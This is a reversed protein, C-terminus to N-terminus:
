CAAVEGNRLKLVIVRFNRSTRTGANMAKTAQPKRILQAGIRRYRPYAKVIPRRVANREHVARMRRLELALSSKCGGVALLGATGAKVVGCAHFSSVNCIDSFLRYLCSVM